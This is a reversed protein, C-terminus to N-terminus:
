AFLKGEKINPQERCFLLLDSDYVFRLTYFRCGESKRKGLAINIIYETKRAVGFICSHHNGGSKLLLLRNFFNCFQEFLFIVTTGTDFRIIALKRHPIGLVTNVKCFTAGCSIGTGCLDNRPFGCGLADTLKHILALIGGIHLKSFRFSM